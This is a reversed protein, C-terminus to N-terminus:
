SVAVVGDVQFDEHRVAVEGSRQPGAAGTHEPRGAGTSPGRPLRPRSRRATGPCTASGGAPGLGARGSTTGATASQAVGAVALVVGAVVPVIRRRAGRARHSANGSADSLACMSSRRPGAALRREPRGAARIPRSWREPRRSWRRLGATRGGRGPRYRARDTARAHPRSRRRASRAATRPMSCNPPLSGRVSACVRCSIAQSSRLEAELQVTVAPRHTERIRVVRDTSVRRCVIGPGAGPDAAAV